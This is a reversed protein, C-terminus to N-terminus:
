ILSIWDKPNKALNDHIKKIESILQREKPIDTNLECIKTLVYDVGKSYSENVFHKDESSMEGKEDTARFLMAAAVGLTINPAETNYKMDLLIAGILRDNRSLKRAVDRGVRYVTDGLAPNAFRQLLGAIYKQHSSKNFEKEQPYEKMLAQGSEQM